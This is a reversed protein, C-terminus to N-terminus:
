GFVLGCGTCELADPALPVECAPCAEGGGAAPAAEAEFVAFIATDIERAPELDEPRVWTGYLTEGGFREPDIGGEAVSRSDPEVRHALGAQTLADSIARTWPLPGVRVCTLAAVEPFDEPDLMPPLADPSVLAVHCDSCKLVSLTFEDGCSPCVQFDHNM